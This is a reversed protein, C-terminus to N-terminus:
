FIYFYAIKRREQKKGCYKTYKSHTRQCCIRELTNWLHKKGQRLPMWIYIFLSFHRSFHLGAFGGSFLSWLSHHAWDGLGGGKSRRVMMWWSRMWISCTRQFLLTVLFESSSVNFFGFCKLFKIFIGEKWVIYLKLNPM